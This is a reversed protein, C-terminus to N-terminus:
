PSSPTRRRFSAQPTPGCAREVLGTQFGPAPFGCARNSSHPFFVSGPQLKLCRYWAFAAPFLWERGGLAVAGKRSEVSSDLFGQLAPALADLRSQAEATLSIGKERFLRDLTAKKGGVFSVAKWGSTAGASSDSRGPLPNGVRRQIIWQNSDFALQWRREADLTFLPKDAM